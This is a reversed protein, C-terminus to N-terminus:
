IIGTRRMAVLDQESYGLRDCYIERNHEGLLPAPHELKVPTRSFKYPASPYPLKGAEPHSIEVFFDRAKLHETNMAEGVTYVAALPVRQARVRKGSAGRTVDLETIIGISIDNSITNFKFQM